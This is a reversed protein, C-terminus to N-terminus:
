SKKVSAFTWTLHVKESLISIFNDGKSTTSYNKIEEGRLSIFPHLPFNEHLSSVFLFKAYTKYTKNGFKSQPDFGGCFHPVYKSPRLALIQSM